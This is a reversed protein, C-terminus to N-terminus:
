FSPCPGSSSTVLKKKRLKLPETVQYVSLGGGLGRQFCFEDCKCEKHTRIKNKRRKVKNRFNSQHCNAKIFTMFFSRIRRKHLWESSDWNAASKWAYVSLPLTHARDWQLLQEAPRRTTSHELLLNEMKFKM